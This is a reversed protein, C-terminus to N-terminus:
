VEDDEVPGSSGITISGDPEQIVIPRGRSAKINPGWGTHRVTYTLYKTIPVEVAQGAALVCVVNRGREKPDDPEVAVKMLPELTWSGGGVGELSKEIQKIQEPSM